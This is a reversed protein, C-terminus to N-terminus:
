TRDQGYNNWNNIQFAILIGVIVLV